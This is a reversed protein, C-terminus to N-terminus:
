NTPKTLKKEVRDLRSEIDDYKAQSDSGKSNGSVVVPVIEAEKVIGLKVAEKLEEAYQRMNSDSDGGNLKEVSDQVSTLPIGVSTVGLKLREAQVEKLPDIHPFMPGTFRANSYSEQVVWDKKLVAQLYGPAQINNKLIETYLWFSYIPNYFQTQFNDREVEITHEWDKTAARSASFSDNYISFAVNPPIGISSCIINANTEYFEKFFLENQSDVSKMKSGIPMNIVQKNSSVSVTNALIRGAEDRPLSGSSVADADFARALNANLPNEGTGGIDHEFVYAIKQREEASGVAAERYREMKKVSELATAIVPIGRVNDIRYKSGYYLFATRFGSSASFAEIRESKFIDILEGEKRINVHYAVHRGMADLEVGGVIRNKNPNASLVAPTCLHASDIVQVKVTDEVYRIVVLMDGSVKGGKLTDKAMENLNTMGNHSSQPSKCWMLFRAETIENFAESNIDVGMSRLLDVLPNSQLKLGKDIIWLVYKDIITKVIDSELYAQWSRVGLKRHNLVYDLAPGMEGLNKEGDFSVAYTNGWTGPSRLSASVESEPQKEAGRVSVESEPKRGLIRDIFGM